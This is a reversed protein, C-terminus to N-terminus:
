DLGLNDQLLILVDPEDVAVSALLAHLLARGRNHRRGRLDPGLANCLGDEEVGVRCRNDQVLPRAHPPQFGMASLSSAYEIRSRLFVNNLHPWQDMNERVFCHNHAIDFTSRSHVTTALRLCTLAAFCCPCRRLMACGEKQWGVALNDPHVPRVISICVRHLLARRRPPRLRVSGPGLALEGIPRPPQCFIIQGLVEVCGRGLVGHVAPRLHRDHLYVQTGPLCEVAILHAGTVVHLEQQFPCDKPLNGVHPPHDVHGRIWLAIDPGARAAREDLGHAVHGQGAEHIAEVVDDHIGEVRIGM